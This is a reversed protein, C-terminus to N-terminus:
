GRSHIGIGGSQSMVKSLHDKVERHTRIRAQSISISVLLPQSFQSHSLHHLAEGLSQYINIILASSKNVQTNM